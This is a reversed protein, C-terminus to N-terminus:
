EVLDPLPVLAAHRNPALGVPQGERAWAASPFGSAAKFHDALLKASVSKHHFFAVISSRACLRGM